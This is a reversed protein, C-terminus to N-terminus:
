NLESRKGWVKYLSALRERAERIVPSGSVQLSEFTKSSQTLLPEAEQYRKQTALCEGLAASAFAVDLARSKQQALSLAERMFREDTEASGRM